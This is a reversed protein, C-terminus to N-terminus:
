LRVYHKGYIQVYGHKGDMLLLGLVEKLVPAMEKTLRQQKELMLGTQVPLGLMEKTEM